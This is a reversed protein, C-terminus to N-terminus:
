ADSFHVTGMATMIDFAGQAGNATIAPRHRAHVTRPSGIWGAFDTGSAVGEVRAVAGM